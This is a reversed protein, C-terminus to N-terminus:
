RKAWEKPRPFHEPTTAGVLTARGWRLWDAELAEVSSGLAALAADAPQGDVAARVLPGLWGPREALLFALLSALQPHRRRDVDGEFLDRLPASWPGRGDPAFVNAWDPREFSGPFLALQLHVGLGQTLWRHRPHGPHLRLRRSAVGSMAAYVAVPRDLGRQPDYAIVCVDQLTYAPGTPPDIATRWAAGLRQFADALGSPGAVVLVHLPGEDLPRVAGECVRDLWAPMPGLRATLRDLDDPDVRVGAAVAVRFPGAERFTPVTSPRPAAGPPPVGFEDETSDGLVLRELAEPAPWASRAGRTGATLRIDDVEVTRAEVLVALSRVEDWRGPREGWRWWAFHQGIDSWATRSGDRLRRLFLEHGAADRAVLWAEARPPDHRLRLEVGQHRALAADAPLRVGVELWRAGPAREVRLWARGEAADAGRVLAASGGSVVAAALSADDEFGALRREAAGEDARALGLAVLGIGVVGAARRM